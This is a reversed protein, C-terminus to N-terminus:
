LHDLFTRSAQYIAAARKDIAPFADRLALSRIEPSIPLDRPLAHMIDALPLQGDGPLLRGDIAESMFNEFTDEPLKPPADAIQCYPFLTPSLDKIQAASGGSRILHLTDVLIGSSPHGVDTVVDIADDISKIETIPLFELVATLGANAARDCLREFRRKTNSRDPDSSVILVFKAGVDGGIEIISDHAPDHDGPQIWVVEVDLVGITGDALRRKVERTTKPTWVDMDVWLGTMDFGTQQAATVMEPPTFEQVNGAALSLPYGM